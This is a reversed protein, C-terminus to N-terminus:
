FFNINDCDWVCLFVSVVVNNDVIFNFNVDLCFLVDM